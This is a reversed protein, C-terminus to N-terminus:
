AGTATSLRLGASLGTVQTAHALTARAQEELVTLDAVLRAHGGDFRDPWIQRLNPRCLYEYDRESRNTRIVSDFFRDAAAALTRTMLRAEAWLASELETICAEVVATLEDYLVEAGVKAAVQEGYQPPPITVASKRTRRGTVPDIIWQSVPRAPSTEPPATRPPVAQRPPPQTPPPSQTPPPADSSAYASSARDWHVGRIIPQTVRLVVSGYDEKLECLRQLATALIPARRSEATIRLQSLADPGVPVLDATLRKRLVGSIENWLRQVSENLSPDIRGFIKTIETKARYYEDQKAELAGHVYQGRIENM